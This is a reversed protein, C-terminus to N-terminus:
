SVYIKKLYLSINSTKIPMPIIFTTPNKTEYSIKKVVIPVYIV